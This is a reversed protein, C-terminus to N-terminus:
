CLLTETELIKNGHYILQDCVYNMEEATLSLGSPIYFGQKMIQNAAPCQEPTVWGRELFVKQQNIPVFAERTEIGAQSLLARLKERDIPYKPNLSLNFMWMVPDTFRPITPLTVWPINKLRNAYHDYLYKKRAAIESFRELQGLGIAASVNPLRYNYGIGTHHFKEQKGFCFSRYDAVIDAYEPNNTTIMGGEGCALTKNSYFSFCNLDALTGVSRGKYRVGHAEACDAIVKLRHKQAFTLIPDMDAAQGFLHVVVIAKTNPTLVQELLDANLQWTDLHVDVPIPRAGCYVMSFASAMNTSSAVLVDDGPKLGIAIGALHLATTANSCSIAYQAECFEGFKKEFDTVYKGQSIWGSDLCDNVYKKENDGIWPAYVPIKM